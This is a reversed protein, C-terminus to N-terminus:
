VCLCLPVDLGTEHLHTLAPGGDDHSVAEGGDYMGVLDQHQLHPHLPQWTCLICALTIQKAQLLSLYHLSASVSLQQGPSPHIGAHPALLLPAQLVLSSPLSPLLLLLAFELMWSLLSCNEM